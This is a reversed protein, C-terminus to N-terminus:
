EAATDEVDYVSYSALSAGWRELLALHNPHSLYGSYAEASDLGVYLAVDYDSVVIDRGTEFHRGCFFGTVGPIETLLVRCDKIFAAEDTGDHLDFFVLHNIRATATPSHEAASRCCSSTSQCGGALILCTLSVAVVSAAAARATRRSPSTHDPM